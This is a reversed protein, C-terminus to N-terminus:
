VNKVPLHLKTQGLYKFCRLVSWILSTFLFYFSSNEVCHGWSRKRLSVDHSSIVKLSPRLTLICTTYSIESLEPAGTSAPSIRIKWTLVSCWHTSIWVFASHHHRLINVAYLAANIFRTPSLRLMWSRTEKSISTFLQVNKIYKCLIQFSYKYYSTM